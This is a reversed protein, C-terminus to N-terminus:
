NPRQEVSAAVKTRITEVETIIADTQGALDFAVALERARRLIAGARSFEDILTERALDLDTRVKLVSLYGQQDASLRPDRVYAVTSVTTKETTILIRVGRILERAQDLRHQIAAKKDSWEFRSHLPSDKKAADAVVIDPTLIGGNREALLTLRDRIADQEAITIM